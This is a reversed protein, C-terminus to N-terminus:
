RKRIKTGNPYLDRCARVLLIVFCLLSPSAFPGCPCIGALGAREQTDLVADAHHGVALAKGLVTELFQVLPALFDAIAFDGVVPFPTLM